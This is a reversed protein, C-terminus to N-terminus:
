HLSPYNVIRYGDVLDNLDWVNEWSNPFLGSSSGM